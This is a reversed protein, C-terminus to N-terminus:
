GGECHKQRSLLKPDISDQRCDARTDGVGKAIFFQVGLDGSEINHGFAGPRDDNINQISQNKQQEAGLERLNDPGDPATGAKSMDLHEGVRQYQCKGHQGQAKDPNEEHFKGSAALLHGDPSM